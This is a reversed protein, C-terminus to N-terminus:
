QPLETQSSLYDLLEKHRGIELLQVAAAGDFKAMGQFYFWHRARTADGDALLTAKVLIALEFDYFPDM